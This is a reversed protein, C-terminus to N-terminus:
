VGDYGTAASPTPAGGAAISLLILRDGPAIIEAPERILDAHNRSLVYGGLFAGEETLVQGVLAPAAGGLARLFEDLPAPGALPVCVSDRRALYRAVGLLEVEASAGPISIGPQNAQPRGDQPRPDDSV